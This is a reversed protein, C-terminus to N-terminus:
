QVMNESVGTLERALPELDNDKIRGLKGIVENFGRGMDGARAAEIAANLGMLHTQCAIEMILSVIADMDQVDEQIRATNGAPEGATAALEEAAAAFGAAGSAVTEVSSNMKRAMEQLKEEAEVPRLLALAGVWRDGERVPVATGIYPVGLVSAPVRGAVRGGAQIAKASLRGDFLPSGVRLGLDLLRGKEYCVVEETTSVVLAAEDGVVGRLCPIFAVVKEM